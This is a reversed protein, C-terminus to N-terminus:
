LGVGQEDRRELLHKAGLSALQQAVQGPPHSAIMRRVHHLLHEHAGGAAPLRALEGVRDPEDSPDCAIQEDVPRAAALPVLDDHERQILLTFQANRGILAQLNFRLVKKLNIIIGDSAQWFLRTPYEQHAPVVPTRVLLYTLIESDRHVRDFIVDLSRIGVDDRHHLRM